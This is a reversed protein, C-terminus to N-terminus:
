EEVRFNESFVESLSRVFSEVPPLVCGPKRDTDVDDPEAVLPEIHPKGSASTPNTHNTTKRPM